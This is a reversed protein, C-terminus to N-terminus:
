DFLNVCNIINYNSEDANMYSSHHKSFMAHWKRHTQETVEHEKFNPDLYRKYRKIPRAPEEETDTDSNNNKM